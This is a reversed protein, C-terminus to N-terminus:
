RSQFQGTGALRRAREERIRAFGSELRPLMLWTFALAFLGGTVVRLEWNSERQGFLQTFGDLAIPVTLLMFTRYALPQIRWRLLGYVLGFLLLGTYIATDRECYAMKQDFVYFSRDMRQHCILSYARYIWLAVGSEGQAVLYPALVALGALVAASGNVLLLWHHVIEDIVRDATGCRRGGQSSVVAARQVM